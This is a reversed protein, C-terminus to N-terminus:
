VNYRQGSLSIHNTPATCHTFFPTAHCVDISRMTSIAFSALKNANKLTSICILEKDSTYDTM